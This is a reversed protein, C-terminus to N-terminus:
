AAIKEVTDRLAHVSETTAIEEVWAVEPAFLPVSLKVSLLLILAASTVRTDLFV